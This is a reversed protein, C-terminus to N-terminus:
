LATVGDGLSPTVATQWFVTSGACVGSGSPERVGLRIGCEPTNVEMAGIPPAQEVGIVRPM